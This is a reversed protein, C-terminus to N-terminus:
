TRVRNSLENPDEGEAPFFEALREGIERVVQCVGDVARRDRIRDIIKKVEDDWYGAPVKQHIGRDALIEVRREFRSVYILVGNREATDAVGEEVFRALAERHVQEALRKRGLVLRRMPPIAAVLVGVVAGFTQVRLFMEIDLIWDFQVRWGVVLTGLIMGVWAWLLTAELYRGSSDSLAVVIEGRTTKEVKRIVEEIRPLDAPRIVM